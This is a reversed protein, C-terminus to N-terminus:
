GSLPQVASAFYDVEDDVGNLIPDIRVETPHGLEPHYAVSIRDADRSTEIIEFLREITPVGRDSGPALDQLPGAEGDTVTQNIPGRYGCFCQVDLTWIYDDPGNQAWLERAADLDGFPDASLPIAGVEFYPVAVSVEISRDWAAFGRVFGLQPSYRTEGEVSGGGKAVLDFADEIRVIDAPDVDCDGYLDKAQTVAGGVVVVRMGRAGCRQEFSLSASGELAYIVYTYSGPENAEWLARSHALAEVMEPTAPTEAVAAGSVVPAGYEAIWEDYVEPSNLESECWYVDGTTMSYRSSAILWEEGVEGHFGPSWLGVTQGIDYTFWESVEFTTWPTDGSNDVGLVTGVFIMEIRADGTKGCYEGVTDHFRMGDPVSFDLETSAASESSELPASDDAVAASGDDGGADDTGAIVEAASDSTCAALCTLLMALALLSTRKM